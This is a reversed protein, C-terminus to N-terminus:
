LFVCRHCKLLSFCKYWHRKGLINVTTLSLDTRHSAGNQIEM